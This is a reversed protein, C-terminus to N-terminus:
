VISPSQEKISPFVLRFISGKEIESIIVLKAKHRRAIHHVISLGLGTGGTKQSRGSDVRYFRETLRPIHKPLIGIGTDQVAFVPHKKHQAWILSISGGAPTYRIANAVLNGLASHLEDYQGIIWRPGSNKKHLKHQGKSLGTAEVWLTKMLQNMDVKGHASVTPNNELRSLMLLDNLLIQMRYSQSLMVPLYKKLAKQDVFDIASFTELFGSIVTLPTRLEHSINAIFDRRMTKANELASVDRLLLLRHISSLRIVQISLVSTAALSTSLHLRLPVEDSNQDLYIQLIPQRVLACIDAGLDMPHKLSLQIAAARNFWQIHYASDLLIAGEPISHMVAMIRKLLFHFRLQEYRKARLASAFIRFIRRWVGYILNNQYFRIPRTLFLNIHYLHFILWFLTLGLVVGLAVTFNIMWCLLGGIGVIAGIPLVVRRLSQHTM